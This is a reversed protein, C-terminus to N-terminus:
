NVEFTTAQSTGSATESSYSLTASWTGSTAFDSRQVAIFKCVTNSADAFGESTKTFVFSGKTFTATCTGGDEVVGSVFGRLGSDSVSTIVPTVTLRGDPAPSPAPTPTSSSQKRDAAQQKEEETAPSMDIGNSEEPQQQGATDTPPKARTSRYGVFAAVGLLVLVAVLLAPRWFLRKRRSNSKAM